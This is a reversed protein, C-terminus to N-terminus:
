TQSQDEQSPPEVSMRDLVWFLTVAVAGLLLFYLNFTILGYIVAIFGVCRALFLRFNRFAIIAGFIESFDSKM